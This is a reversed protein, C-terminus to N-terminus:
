VNQYKLMLKANNIWSSSASDSESIIAIRIEGSRIQTDYTTITNRLNVYYRQIVKKGNAATISSTSGVQPKVIRDFLVTHDNPDLYENIGLGPWTAGIRKPKYVVVRMSGVMNTGNTALFIQLSLNRWKDGLVNDRFAPDGHFTATLNLDSRTTVGATATSVWTHFWHKTEPKQKNVKRRLETIQTQLRASYPRTPVMATPRYGMNKYSGRLFPM